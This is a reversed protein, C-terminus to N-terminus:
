RVGPTRGLLFREHTTAEINERAAAEVFWGNRWKWQKLTGQYDPITQSYGCLSAITTEPDLTTGLASNSVRVLDHVLADIDTKHLDVLEGVNADHVDCLLGFTCNWILKGAMENVFRLRPVENAPLGLKDFWRVLAAAHDGTFISPDGSQPRAGRTPVAFYLLGRTNSGCSKSELLDGIMGNQIFVLDSRREPPVGEIIAALDPANTCVLIPGEGQPAINSWGSQRDVPTAAVGRERALGELGQGVRGMGLLIM